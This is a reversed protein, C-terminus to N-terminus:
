QMGDLRVYSGEKATMWTTLRETESADSPFITCESPRDEFEVIRSLLIPPRDEHDDPAPLREEATDDTPSNGM